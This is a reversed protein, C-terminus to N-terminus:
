PKLDVGKDALLAEFRGRFGAQSPVGALHPGGDADVTCVLGAGTDDRSGVVPLLDRYRDTLAILRQNTSGRWLLDAHLEEVYPGDVLLDVEALLDAAGGHRDLAVGHPSDPPPMVFGTYCIVGLDRRRRVQRILAALGSAQLMPEGGSLTVGEIDPQALLWDAVQDVPEASGGDTDWAEPAICGACRQACGQVWVVARRGPGLVEAIPAARHAIRLM